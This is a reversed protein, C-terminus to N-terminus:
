LLVMDDASTAPRSLISNNSAERALAIDFAGKLLEPHMKTAEHFEEASLFLLATDDIALVTATSAKQMLLSIEGFLDGPGLHAVIIQEDRDRKLVQM